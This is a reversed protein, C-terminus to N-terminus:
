LLRGGELIQYDFRVGQTREKEIKPRDYALEKLPPSLKLNSPPAEHIRNLHTRIPIKPYFKTLATQIEKMEELASNEALTVIHVQIQTGQDCAQQLEDAMARLTGSDFFKQAMEVCQFYGILNGTSPGDVILPNKQSLTWWHHFLLLEDLNPLLQLINQLLHSQSAIKVLPSFKITKRLFNELLTQANTRHIKLDQIQLRQAEETLAQTYEWLEHGPYKQQLLLSTRTKGVGGKGTVIRLM